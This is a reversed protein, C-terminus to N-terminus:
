LIRRVFLFGLAGLISVAAGLGLWPVGSAAIFGAQHIKAPAPVEKKPKFEATMEESSSNQSSSIKQTGSTGGARPASVAATRKDEKLINEKLFEGPSPKEQVYIIGDRYIGISKGSQLAEPLIVRVAASNNPYVLAFEIGGEWFAQEIPFAVAAGAPIMTREPMAFRKGSRENVLAWSGIDVDRNGGNALEFFGEPGSTIESIFVSNPVITIRAYDSVSEYDSSVSVSAIYTGPFKYTHAVGRGESFRGDGFSWLFRGGDLPENKYGFVRGLFLVPAGVVGDQDKGADARFRPVVVEPQLVTGGSSVSQGANSDSSQSQSESSAGRIENTFGAGPTPTAAIWSTGNKQLSKGDGNAGLANSYSM